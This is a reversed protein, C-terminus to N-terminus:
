PMILISQFEGYGNEAYPVNFRVHGIKAPHPTLGLGRVPSANASDMGYPMGHPPSPPGVQLSAALHLSM